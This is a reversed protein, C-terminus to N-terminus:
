DNSKDAELEALLQKVKQEKRLRQLEKNKARIIDERLEDASLFELTEDSNRDLGMFLNVLQRLEMKEKENTYSILGLYEKVGHSIKERELQPVVTVFINLPGYIRFSTFYDLNGKFLFTIKNESLSTITIQKTIEFLANKSPPSIYKTSHDNNIHSQYEDMMMKLFSVKFNNPFTMIKSYNYAKQYAQGRSKENFVIIYPTYGVQSKVKTIVRAFATKGNKSFLENDDSSEEEPEMQFCIIQPLFKNFYDEFGRFNQTIKIFRNFRNLEDFLKYHTMLRSDIILAADNRLFIDDGCLQNFILQYENQTFLKGVFDVGYKNEEFINELQLTKKFFSRPYFCDTQIIRFFKLKNDGVLYQKAEIIDGEKEQMSTEIYFNRSTIHSVKSLFNAQTSVKIGYVTAFESLKYSKSDLLYFLDDMVRQIEEEYLFGYEIGFAYVDFHLNVDEKSTFLAMVRTTINQHGKLLLLFSLLENTVKNIELLLIDPRSKVIAEFIQDFDLPSCVLKRFTCDKFRSYKDQYIDIDKHKGVYTISYKSM